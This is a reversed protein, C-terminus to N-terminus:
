PKTKDNRTSDVTLVKSGICTEMTPQEAYRARHWQHTFKGKAKEAIFDELDEKAIVWQKFGTIKCAPLNKARIHRYVGPVSLGTALAVIQVSVSTPTTQKRM